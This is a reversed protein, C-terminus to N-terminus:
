KIEKKGFLLINILILIFKKKRKKEMNIIYIIM